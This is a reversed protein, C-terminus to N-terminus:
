LRTGSFTWFLGLISGSFHANYFDSPFQKAEANQLTPPFLEKRAVPYNFYPLGHHDLSPCVPQADNKWPFPTM